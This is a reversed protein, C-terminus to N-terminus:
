EQDLRIQLIVLNQHILCDNTINSIGVRSFAKLWVLGCNSGGNNGAFANLSLNGLPVGRCDRYVKLSIKYKGSGLSTYSMDAGVLHSANAKIMLGLFLLCLQFKRDNVFTPMRLVM